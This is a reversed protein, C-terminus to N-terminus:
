EAHHKGGTSALATRANILAGAMLTWQRGPVAGLKSVESAERELKGLVKRLEENERQLSELATNAQRIMPLTDHASDPTQPDPMRIYGLEVGNVIFQEAAALAKKIEELATM